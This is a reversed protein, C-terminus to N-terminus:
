PNAAAGQEARTIHLKSCLADFNVVGFRRVGMRAHPSRIIVYDAFRFLRIPHARLTIESASLTFEKTVGTIPYFCHLSDGQIRIRVPVSRVSWTNIAQIVLAGALFFAPFGALAAVLVACWAIGYFLLAIFRAPFIM